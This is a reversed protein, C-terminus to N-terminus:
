LRRFEYAVSGCTSYKVVIERAALKVLLLFALYETVHTFNNCVSDQAQSSSISIQPSPPVMLEFSIWDYCVHQPDMRSWEEMWQDFERSTTAEILGGQAFFELAPNPERWLLDFKLKESTSLSKLRSLRSDWDITEFGSPGAV